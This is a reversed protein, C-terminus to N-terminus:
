PFLMTYHFPIRGTPGRGIKAPLEEIDHVISEVQLMSAEPSFALRIPTPGSLNPDSFVHEVTLRKKTM